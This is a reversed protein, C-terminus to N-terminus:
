LPFLTKSQDYDTIVYIRKSDNRPRPIFNIDEGQILRNILESRSNSSSLEFIRKVLNDYDENLKFVRVGPFSKNILETQPKFRTIFCLFKMM